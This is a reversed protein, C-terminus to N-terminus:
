ACAIWVHLALIHLHLSNDFTPQAGFPEVWINKFTIVAHLFTDAAILAAKAGGM